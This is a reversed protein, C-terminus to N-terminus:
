NNDFNSKCNKLSLQSLIKKSARVKRSLCEKVSMHSNGPPYGSKWAVPLSPQFANLYPSINPMNPNLRLTKLMDGLIMAKNESNSLERIRANDEAIEM